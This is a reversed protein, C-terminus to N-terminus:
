AACYIVPPCFVLEECCEHQVHSKYELNSLQDVLSDEYLQLDTDKNEPLLWCM